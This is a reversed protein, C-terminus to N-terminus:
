DTPPVSVRRRKITTVVPSPGCRGSEASSRHWKWGAAEDIVWDLERAGDGDLLADRDDATQALASRAQDAEACGQVTLVQATSRCYQEGAGALRNIIEETV